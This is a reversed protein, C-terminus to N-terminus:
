LQYRKHSHKEMWNLKKYLHINLNKTDDYTFEVDAEIDGGYEYFKNIKKVAYEEEKESCAINSNSM